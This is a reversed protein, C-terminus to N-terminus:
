GGKGYRHSLWWKGIIKKQAGTFTVGLPVTAANIATVLSAANANWWDEIAQLAANIQPKTHTIGNPWDATAGRRAAALETPTITAM